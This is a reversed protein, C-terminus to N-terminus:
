NFNNLKKLLDDLSTECNVIVPMGEYFNIKITNERGEIDSAEISRINEIDYISNTIKIYRM